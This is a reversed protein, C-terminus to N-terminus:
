PRHTRRGQPVNDTTFVESIVAAFRNVAAAPSAAADSQALRPRFATDSEDCLRELLEIFEEHRKASRVLGAGALRDVFRVQHDDVHERLASSRPVVLPYLGRRRSEVITSPGGHCVLIDAQQLLSDIEKYSYFSRGEAHEPARSAGYQVVGRAGPHDACWSDVWGILRNFPHHDTGVLAVLTLDGM